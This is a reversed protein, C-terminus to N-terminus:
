RGLYLDRLMVGWQEWMGAPTVSFATIYENVWNVYNLVFEGWTRWYEVSAAMRHRIDSIIAHQLNSDIEGFGPQKEMYERIEFSSPTLDM